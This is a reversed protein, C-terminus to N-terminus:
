QAKSADHVDETVADFVRYQDVNFTFQRDPLSERMKAKEKAEKQLQKTTNRSNETLYSNSQQTSSAQLIYLLNSLM